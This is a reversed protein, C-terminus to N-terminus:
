PMVKLLAEGQPQTTAFNADVFPALLSLGPPGEVEWLLAVNEGHWRLALSIRHHPSAIVGHAEGNVGRWATPVGMPLVHAQNPQAARIFQDEAQAAYVVGAGLAGGPTAGSVESPLSRDDVLQQWVGSVDSAARAEDAAALTRAAMVLARGSWASERPKRAIRRVADALQSVWVGAPDGMRVREGIALVGLAADDHLLDDIDQATALLVECRAGVLQEHAITVRSARDCSQAWGHVVQEYAPLLSANISDPKRWRLRHLPWAFTVSSRHALPFARVGSPVAIGQPTTGGAAATTSMGRTSVAVVVPQPSENSMQVVLRGDQDAVVFARHVVDGGPVALKTEIVPTGDIRHQRISPAQQPDHWRDSAAVWWACEEGAWDDVHIAGGADVTAHAAGHLGIRAGTPTLKMSRLKMPLFKM